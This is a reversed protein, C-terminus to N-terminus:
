YSQLRLRCFKRQKWNPAMQKRLSVSLCVGSRLREPNKKKKREMVSLVGALQVDDCVFCARIEPQHKHTHKVERTLDKRWIKWTTTTTIYNSYWWRANLISLKLCQPDHKGLHHMIPLLLERQACVCVCVWTRSQRRWGFLHIFWNINIWRSHLILTSKM